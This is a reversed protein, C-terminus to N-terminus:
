GGLRWFVFCRVIREGKVGVQMKKRTFGVRGIMKVVTCGGPGPCRRNRMIRAAICYKDMVLVCVCM